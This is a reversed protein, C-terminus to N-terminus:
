IDIFKNVFNCLRESVKTVVEPHFWLGQESKSWGADAIWQEMKDRKDEKMYPDLSFQRIIYGVRTGKGIEKRKSLYENVESRKLVKTQFKIEDFNEVISSSM